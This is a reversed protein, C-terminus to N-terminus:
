SPSQTPRSRPWTAPLGRRRDPQPVAPSTRRHPRPHGPCGNQHRTRARGSSVSTVPFKPRGPVLASCEHGAGTHPSDRPSRDSMVPKSYMPPYRGSFVSESLKSCGRTSPLPKGAMRLRLLDVGVERIEAEVLTGPCGPVSPCDQSGASKGEAPVLVVLDPGQNAVFADLEGDRLQQVPQGAQVGLPVAGVGVIRQRQDVALAAAVVGVLDQTRGGPTFGVGVTRKPDAGVIEGRDASRCAVPDGNDRLDPADDDPGLDVVAEATAM